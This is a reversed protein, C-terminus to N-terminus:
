WLIGYKENELELVLEEEENIEKTGQENVIDDGVIISGIMFFKPIINKEVICPSKYKKKM